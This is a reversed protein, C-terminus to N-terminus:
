FELRELLEGDVTYFSVKISDKDEWEMVAYSEPSASKSLYVSGPNIFLQQGIKEAGVIHNHGYCVVDANVEQARYSLTFLDKKVDYTHGHVVYFSLQDIEFQEELPFQTDHDCNGAVKIMKELVPHDFALESDGCHIMYDIEHRVTIAAVEDILGHNDSVILVRIM